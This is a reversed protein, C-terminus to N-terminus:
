ETGLEDLYNLIYYKDDINYSTFQWLAWSTNKPTEFIIRALQSKISTFNTDSVEVGFIIKFNPNDYYLLM